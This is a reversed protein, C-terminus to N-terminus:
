QAHRLCASSGAPRSSRSVSQLSCLTTALTTTFAYTRTYTFLFLSKLRAFPHLTALESPDNTSQQVCHSRLISSCLATCLLVRKDVQMHTDMCQAIALRCCRRAVQHRHALSQNHTLQMSSARRTSCCARTCSSDSSVAASTSAHTCCTLPQLVVVVIRLVAVVVLLIIGVLLSQGTRRTYGHPSTAQEFQLPHTVIGLPLCTPIEAANPRAAQLLPRQM